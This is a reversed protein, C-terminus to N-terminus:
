SVPKNDSLNRYITPRSVGLVTAIDGVADGAQYM